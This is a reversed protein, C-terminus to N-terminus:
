VIVRSKFTMQTFSNKYPSEGLRTVIGKGLKFRYRNTIPDPVRHVLSNAAAGPWRPHLFNAFVVGPRVADTVLAVATMEGSGRKIHGNADLSKFLFDDGGVFAFGGTQVLIDDSAIRVEDGSEVGRAAADDPHMEIFHEPWRAHIYPKRVDDFASQWLENIRGNTVWLEDGTPTIRDYFDSFWEWPSKNLVAKGSHSHFHTLWKPHVTVGEPPGLELTSDHLRQTGVLENNVLRIPTQLGTTGLERLKEHGSKGEQKAKVVLPHYNLMGNRSFRAAEEFIDNSDRWDYGEFGMKQAFGAIIKWDPMSEGPPDYFKSYLRIRREGNCRSFNEEGWTAAPLVMDAIVDGIPSRLYIDQDVVVMGGSDARRILADAAEEVDASTVQHPNDRTLEIFRDTFENSAAMAQTWTTGIVWAFRLNGSEVWRDLDIAQRRRGPLRNPSDSRPYSAAGMWGRQHGGLRSIMQGPRNGAGCLLGLAAYSATNLYNNSWYNGKEFGFSTKPRVGDVPKAIMEASRQILEAPVGTIEAARDLEAHPQEFLWERYGDFDTGLRGWTTRWQWPTNRTGRGMGADIEWNNAIWKEIFETDEWGNELIIRALALHLVTDSGPIVPLWVGGKTEAWAVGATKRPLTFILQKDLNGTMMWETFLVTKTEFPDTGSIFIVDAESWDEFSASFPIVGSDDLGATDNGPGPKDHPSYAPTVISRFALKSIAYTNEFYEYSYTKMGWAAEGHNALIYKSVRTMIEFADDWSIPTLEGNVRLLPTKLRDRTPTDPNYAKLALTGGRISHNGKRNVVDAHPDPQVVVHHPQGNVSVINHQNPSVWGEFANAPLDIGLANETARPGGETGEPWTYVRYGCGVICYDCATTVMNADPPPLPVSDMPVYQDTVDAM